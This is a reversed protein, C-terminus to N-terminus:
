SNLRGGEQELDERLFTLVDKFKPLNEPSVRVLDEHAELMTEATTKRNDGEQQIETFAKSDPFLGQVAEPVFDRTDGGLGAVQKVISSSVYSHIEKPMM